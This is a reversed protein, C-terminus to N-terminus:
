KEQSLLALYMRREAKPFFQLLEIAVNHRIRQEENMLPDFLGCVEFLTRFVVQGDDTAAVRGFATTIAALREDDPLEKLWEM